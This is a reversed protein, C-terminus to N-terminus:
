AGYEGFGAYGSLRHQDAQHQFTDHGIGSAAGDVGGFAGSASMSSPSDAVPRRRTGAWRFYATASVMVLLLYGLFCSAAIRHRRRADWVLPNDISGLLRQERANLWILFKRRPAAPGRGLQAWVEPCLAAVTAYYRYEAIASWLMLVLWASILATTM